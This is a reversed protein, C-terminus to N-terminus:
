AAIEMVILSSALRSDYETTNRDPVSRNVYMIYSPARGSGQLKYTVASGTGPSDLYSFSHLHMFGDSNSQDVNLAFFSTPTPRSGASDGTFITTSNRVLNVYTAWFNSSAYVRAMVLFKSTTSTPTLTVSLGTIDVMTFGSTSFTDTKVAQAVQLVSGAPLAARPITKGTSGTTIINGTEAPLTVVFTNGTDAPALTVTGSSATTLVIQGAM